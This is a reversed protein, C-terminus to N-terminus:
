IFIKKININSKKISLFINKKKILYIIDKKKIKKKM